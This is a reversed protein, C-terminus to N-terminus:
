RTYPDLLKDLTKKRKEEDKKQRGEFDAEEHKLKLREDEVFCCARLWRGMAM